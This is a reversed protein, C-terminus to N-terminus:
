GLPARQVRARGKARRADAERSPRIASDSAQWPGPTSSLPKQEGRRYLQASPYARVAEQEFGYGEASEPIAKAVGGGVDIDLVVVVTAEVFHKEEIAQAPYTVTVTGNFVPPVVQGVFRTEVEQASAKTIALSTVVLFSVSLMRSFHVKSIPVM